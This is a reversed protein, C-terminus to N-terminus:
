NRSAILSKSDSFFHKFYVDSSLSYFEDDIGKYESM